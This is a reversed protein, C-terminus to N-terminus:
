RSVTIVENLDALPACVSVRGNDTQVINYGTGVNGSEVTPDLPITMIYKEDETLVGLDVGSSCPMGTQCIEYDTNQATCGAEDVPITDPVQGKNDLTYQGVANLIANVNSLRTSNKAQNLQRAPNLAIITITALVAILAIVLLIEILTFGKDTEHTSFRSYM